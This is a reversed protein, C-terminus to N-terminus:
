QSRVQQAFLQHRRNLFGKKQIFYIFMLRNLMVSAYWRQLQEDPIGKIFRLFAAHEKQFRDYFRKTVKEVDFGARARITVDVLTLNEEEALEIVVNKLKQILADGPQDRYFHHERAAAPKGVERKVWQWIQTTKEVDTFIIFHEHASKAVQREIKRRLNYDPLAGDCECVFAAMGRKEAVATLDFTRNGVPISLSAKHKDWGLEEVFLAPFNFERLLKKAHAEDIAM